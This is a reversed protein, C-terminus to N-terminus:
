LLGGGFFMDTQSQPGVVRRYVGTAIQRVRTATLRPRLAEGVGAATHGEALMECIAREKVTRAHRALQGWRRPTLGSVLPSSTEPWPPIDLFDNWNKPFLDDIFGVVIARHKRSQSKMSM